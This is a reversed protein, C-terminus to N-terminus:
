TNGRLMERQLQEREGRELRELITELTSALSIPDFPKAIYGVAGLEVAAARDTDEARATLFVIPVSGGLERAVHWGDAVPMMADLLILDVQERALLELAEQGNTAEIVEIGSAVLNFRCVMRIAPDDDVVFVRRVGAPRSSGARAHLHETGSERRHEACQWVGLRRM